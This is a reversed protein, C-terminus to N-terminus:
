PPKKPLEKFATALAGDQTQSLAKMQYILPVTMCITSVAGDIAPVCFLNFGKNFINKVVFLFVSM